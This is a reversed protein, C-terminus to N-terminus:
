TTSPAHAFEVVDLWGVRLVSDSRGQRVRSRRWGPGGVGEGARPTRSVTRMGLNPMPIRHHSASANAAMAASVATATASTNRSREDFASRAGRRSRATPWATVAESAIESAILCLRSSRAIVVM